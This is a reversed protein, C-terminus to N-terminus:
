LTGGAVDNKPSHHLAALADGWSGGASLWGQVRASGAQGCLLLRLRAPDKELAVANVDREVAVALAAEVYAGLLEPAKSGLPCGEIYVVLAQGWREISLAGFGALSVEGGLQDVMSELTPKGLTAKELTVSGAAGLRARIRAGAAKGLLAGFRRIAAADLGNCLQALADAGLLLAPSQGELTVHGRPLDFVVARTPDFSSKDM